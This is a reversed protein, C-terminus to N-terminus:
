NVSKMFTEVALVSFEAAHKLSDGKHAVAGPTMRVVLGEYINFALSKNFAREQQQQAYAAATSPDLELM